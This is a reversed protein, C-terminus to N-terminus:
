FIWFGSRLGISDSLISLIPVEYGGSFPSPFKITMSLKTVIYLRNWLISPLPSLSYSPPKTRGSVLLITFAEFDGHYKELQYKVTSRIQHTRCARKSAQGVCRSKWKANVVTNNKTESTLTVITLELGISNSCKHLIPAQPSHFLLEM